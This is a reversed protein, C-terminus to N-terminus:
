KWEDQESSVMGAEEQDLRERREWEERESKFDRIASQLVSFDTDLVQEWLIGFLMVVFGLVVIGVVIAVVWQEGNGAAASAFSRITNLIARQLRSIEYWSWSDASSRDCHYILYAISIIISIAIPALWVWTATVSSSPASTFFVWIFTIIFSLVCPLSEVAICSYTKSSSQTSM